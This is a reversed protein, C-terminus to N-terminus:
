YEAARREENQPVELCWRLVDYRECRLAAHVTTTHRIAPCIEAEETAPKRASVLKRVRRTIQHAGSSLEPADGPWGKRWEM